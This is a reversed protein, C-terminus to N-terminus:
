QRRVFQKMRENLENVEYREGGSKGKSTKTESKSRQVCSIFADIEKSCPMDDFTNTKWCGMVATMEHVCPTTKPEKSSARVSSKLKMPRMLGHFRGRALSCSTHVM